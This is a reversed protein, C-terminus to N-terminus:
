IRKAQNAKTRRFLAFAILGLSTALGYGYPEPVPTINLSWDLLTSTGGSSLDAVFFTWNGNPDTNQFIGLGATRSDTDLVFRPDVNRADPQWTGTLPQGASLTVNLAYNHIDHAANDNLTMSLGSDQYGAPNSGTKGPRNVLIATDSGHRLYAYLDGNFNGSINLSVSIDQIPTSATSISHTDSLGSINGDPISQAPNFSFTPV